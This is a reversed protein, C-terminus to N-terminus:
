NDIYGLLYDNKFIDVSFYSREPFGHIYIKIYLNKSNTKFLLKVGAPPTVRLYFRESREKYYSKQEETFRHFRVGNEDETVCVAGLTIKELQEKTLKM